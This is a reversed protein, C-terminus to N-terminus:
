RRAFSWLSKGTEPDLQLLAPVVPSHDAGWFGLPGALECPGKKM